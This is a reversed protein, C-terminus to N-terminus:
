PPDAPSGIAAALRSAPLARGDPQLREALQGHRFVALRAAGLAADLHSPQPSWLGALWGALVDGSGPVALAASGTPNIWPTQGPAAIVTGSGKLVVVAAYREALQRAADLRDHQVGSVSPAQPDLLRAAELPHPTLVTALGLQGRERLADQWAPQAAIANLADADLVLRVAQEILLPLAQAIDGGGGCGALATTQPGLQAGALPGGFMLEPSTADLRPAQPDLLHIYVRGAGARLAARGALLAAGTMAAAGGVVRVDGFSGKHQAHRRQLPAATFPQPTNLWAVPPEDRGSVALDDWWIRGAADRGQATFLGPALSLLALTADARVYAAGTTIAGTDAPLGSPLDVALVQAGSRNIAEIAGAMPGEAPRGLGRGLLADIVLHDGGAGRANLADTSSESWAEIRVGAAGARQLSAAADAPLRAADGLFWVCLDRGPQLLHLSAEFGDGGNNGPGALVTITGTHPAVAAALRAVGLGARQMLTHPALTAAARAELRRAAASDHLPIPEATASTSNSNCNPNRWPTLPWPRRPSDVWACLPAPHDTPATTRDAPHPMPTTYRHRPM